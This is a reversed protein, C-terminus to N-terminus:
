PFEGVGPYRRFGELDIIRYEGEQDKLFNNNHLDTYHGDALVKNMFEMLKPLERWGKQVDPNPNDRTVPHYLSCMTSILSKEARDLMPLRMMEYAYRFTGWRENNKDDEEQLVEFRYVPVVMPDPNVILHNVLKKIWNFSERQSFGAEKRVVQDSILKIGYRSEINEDYKFM